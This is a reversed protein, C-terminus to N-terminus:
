CSLAGCVMQGTSTNECVILSCFCSCATGSPDCTPEWGPGSIVWVEGLYVFADQDSCDNCVVDGCLHTPSGAAGSSGASDTTPSGAAGAASSFGAAGASGATGAAGAFDATGASGPSSGASGASGATGAAISGASGAVLAGGSGAHHPVTSGSSGAGITAPVNTALTKDELGLVDGCAAFTFTCILLTKIM